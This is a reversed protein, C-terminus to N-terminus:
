LLEAAGSCWLHAMNFIVSQNQMHPSKTSIDLPELATWSWLEHPLNQHSHVLTERHRSFHRISPNQSNWCKSTYNRTALPKNIPNASFASVSWASIACVQVIPDSLLLTTLPFTNIEYKTPIWCWSLRVFELRFNRIRGDILLYDM